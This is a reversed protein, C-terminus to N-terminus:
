TIDNAFAKVHVREGAITNEFKQMAETDSWTDSQDTAYGTFM